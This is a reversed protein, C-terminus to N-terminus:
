TLIICISDGHSLTGMELVVHKCHRLVGQITNLTCWKAGSRNRRQCSSLREIIFCARSGALTYHTHFCLCFPCWRLFLSSPPLVDSNCSPFSLLTFIRFKSFLLTKSILSLPILHRENWVLPFVLWDLFESTCSHFTSFGPQWAKINEISHSTSLVYPHLFPLSSPCGYSPISSPTCPPYMFHHYCGNKVSSWYPALCIKSMHMCTHMYACMCVCTHVNKSIRM